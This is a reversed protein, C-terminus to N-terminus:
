FCTTEPVSIYKDWECAAVKATIWRIDKRGRYEDKSAFLMEHPLSVDLGAQQLEVATERVIMAIVEGVTTRRRPCLQMSWLDESWRTFDENTVGLGAAFPADDMPLQGNWVGYPPRNDHSNRLSDCDFVCYRYPDDYLIPLVPTTNDTTVPSPNTDADPLLGPIEDSPHFLPEDLFPCESIDIWDVPRRLEADPNFFGYRFTYSKLAGNQVLFSFHGYSTEVESFTVFCHSRFDRTHPPALYRSNRFSPYNTIIDKWLPSVAAAAPHSGFPLYSLIEAQLEVPLAFLPHLTRKASGSMTINIDSGTRVGAFSALWAWM